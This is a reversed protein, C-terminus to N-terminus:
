EPIHSTHVSQRGAANWRKKEDSISHGNGCVSLWPVSLPVHNICDQLPLLFSWGWHFLREVVM